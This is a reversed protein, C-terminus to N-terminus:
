FDNESRKRHKKTPKKHCEECRDRDNTAFAREGNHCAGCFEGRDMAAMTMKATGFKMAFIGPHCDACTYNEDSHDEGEFTVKGQGGGPWTLEKDPGVAAAPVALVLLLILPLMRCEISRVM